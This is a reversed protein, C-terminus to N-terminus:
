YRKLWCTVVIVPGMMDVLSHVEVASIRTINRFQRDDELQQENAM